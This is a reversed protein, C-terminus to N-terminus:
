MVEVRLIDNYPTKKSKKIIIRVIHRRYVFVKLLFNMVTVSVDMDMKGHPTLLPLYHKKWDLFYM